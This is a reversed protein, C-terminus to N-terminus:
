PTTPPIAITFVSTNALGSNAFAWTTGGNTTQLVGNGTGAYLISTNGPYLALSGGGSLSRLQTWSGGGNTSKYIAGSTGAYITAPNTPDIAFSNFSGGGAQAPTKTWTAGSDTSKFIGNPPFAAGAYITAPNIPDIAVARFGDFSSGFPIGNNLPVWAAGANTTKLLGRGADAAFITSPNSPDIALSYIAGATLGSRAWTAGGNTSKFVGNLGGGGAYLILPNTPDIALAHVAAFCSPQGIEVLGVATALSTATWRAGGDTSKYLNACTIPTFGTGAYVTDPNSPDIAVVYIEVNPIGTNAATWSVGGNTSKFVGGATGAYLTLPFEVPSPIATAITVPNADTSGIRVSLPVNDGVPANEPVRVNVQYLGVFGPALGSFLVTAQITGIRVTPTNLTPSATEAPRGSVWPGRVQGLGTMYIAIVDGLAARNTVCDSRGAPCIKSFDSARLIAGPGRGNQDWTFVGPSVSSMAVAMAPSIMRGAPTQVEVQVMASSLGALEVPVQANIQQPSAFFLPATVGNILVSAGALRTPLPTSLATATTGDTLSVGFISFIVGPALVGPQAYSAVNVMGGPNIQPVPPAQAWVNLPVLGLFLVLTVVALRM